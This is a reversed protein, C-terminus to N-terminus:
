RPWEPALQWPDLEVLWRPAPWQEHARRSSSWGMRCSSRGISARSRGAFALPVHGWASNSGVPAALDSEAKSSTCSARPRRPQDHECAPCDDFARQSLRDTAAGETGARVPRIDASRRSPAGGWGAPSGRGPPQPGSGRNCENPGVSGHSQTRPMATVGDRAAPSDCKGHVLLAVDSAAGTRQRPVQM